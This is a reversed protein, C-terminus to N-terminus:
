SINPLATRTTLPDVVDVTVMGPVRCYYPGWIGVQSPKYGWHNNVKPCGVLDWLIVMKGLETAM